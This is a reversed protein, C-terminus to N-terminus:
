CPSRKQTSGQRESGANVMLCAWVSRPRRAPCRGAGGAHSSYIRQLEFKAAAAWHLAEPGCGAGSRWPRWDTHQRRALPLRLNTLWGMEGEATCRSPMPACLHLANSSRAHSRVENGEAELAVLPVAELVAGLACAGRDGIVNFSVDLQKIPCSLGATSHFAPAM